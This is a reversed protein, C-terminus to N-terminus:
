SGGLVPSTTPTAGNSSGPTSTASTGPGPSGGPTGTGNLPPAGSLKQITLTIDNADAPMTNGNSISITALAVGMEHSLVNQAAVKSLKLMSQKLNKQLQDNFQYVWLGQAAVTITVTSGSSLNLASLLSTQVTGVLAYQASLASDTQAEAELLTSAMSLATTYDYVEETCTESVKVTFTKVLDGAKHDSTITPTCQVSSEVVRENSQVQQALNEGTSQKLTTELPSAASNIDSQQVVMDPQADQGDTFAGPNKVTIGSVCCPQAIDLAQIDGQKGPVVAYANVTASANGTAPVFVSQNFTVQVGDAGTIVTVGVTIGQRTGNFFILQGTAQVAKISGTSTGTATQPQSPATLLRAQIQRQAPNPKGDPKGLLVFNDHELKSAPTVTVQASLTNPLVHGLGGQASVYLGGILLLTFVILMIVLIRRWPSGRRARRPSRPPPLPTLGSPRSGMGTGGAGGSGAPANPPGSAHSPPSGVANNAALNAGIAVGAAGASIAAFKGSGRRGPTNTQDQAEQATQSPSLKGSGLTRGGNVLPASSNNPPTAPLKGSGPTRGGSVLPASPNNPPAAPLKGSGALGQSTAATKGTIKSASGQQSPQIAPLKVSTRPTAPMGPFAIIGPTPAPRHDQQTMTPPEVPVNPQLNGSGSQALSTAPPAYLLDDDDELDPVPGGQGSGPTLFEVTPLDALPSVPISQLPQSPPMQQVMPQVPQKGQAQPGRIANQRSKRSGFGRLGPDKVLGPNSKGRRGGTPIDENKLAQQYSELTSYVLFRRQRAFEAPSSGSPAIFVLEANQLQRRMNKLGDFDVPQHFVKSSELLVIVVQKRGSIDQTTIATLIDQRTDQAEIYIIGIEANRPNNPGLLDSGDGQRM